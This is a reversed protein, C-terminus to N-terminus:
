ATEPSKEDELWRYPDAVQVGFYTDTQEVKRTQPYALTQAAARAGLAALTAVTFVTSTLPAPRM